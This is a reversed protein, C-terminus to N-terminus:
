GEGGDLIIPDEEVVGPLVQQIMPDSGVTIRWEQELIMKEYASILPQPMTGSDFLMKVRMFMYSKVNELKSDLLLESWTTDADAILVDESSEDYMGPGLGLQNLNSIVSNIHILLETDFPTYDPQLGLAAKISELIKSDDDDAM